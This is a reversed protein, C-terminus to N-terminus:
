DYKVVPARYLNGDPYEVILYYVGPPLVGLKLSNRLGLAKQDRVIQGTNNLLAIREAERPTSVIVEDSTPNPYIEFESTKEQPISTSNGSYKALFDNQTLAAGNLTITDLSLAPGEFNGVVSINGIPDVAVMRGNSNQCMSLDKAWISKGIANFKILCLDYSVGDLTGNHLSLSDITYASGYFQSTAYLNEINDTALSEAYANNLWLLNGSGDFKAIFTGRDDSNIGFETYENPDGDIIFGSNRFKGYFGSIYANGAIDTTASKAYSDGEDGEVGARIAWVSHGDENYKALYVDQVLNAADTGTNFLVASGFGAASGNFNGTVYINGYMDAKADAISTGYDDNQITAWKLNGFTDYKAIFTGQNHGCYISTAGFNLTTDFSGALFLNGFGDTSIATVWGIGIVTQVWLVNGSPDFKAFFITATDSNLLTSTGLHISPSTTHGAIYVNGSIDTTVSSAYENGTDGASIAWVVSGSADYEALFLDTGGKNTLTYTGFTITPASFYGTIFEHGANDTTLSLVKVGNSDGVNKAWQCDQAIAFHVSFMLVCILLCYLGAKKIM